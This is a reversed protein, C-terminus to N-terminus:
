PTLSDWFDCQQERVGAIQEVVEGFVMVKPESQCCPEWTPLAAQQLSGSEAFSATWSRTADSVRIDSPGPTYYADVRDFLYMIDIGHFAGRAQLLLPANEPVQEFWYRYAPEQQGINFARADSRAPCSFKVDTTMAVYAARPSPYDAAPYQALALDAVIAPVGIAAFYARVVQQYSQEDSILPADRGNEAATSGVIVPMHNHEGRRIMARPKDTLAWGDVVGDFSLRGLSNTPNTVPDFGAMVADSNLARLCGPIEEAEACGMSEVYDEGVREAEQLPTAGCGGSRLIAAHFLGSALPSAVLRCTSVSGASQGSVLVRDPDGGFAAINDHVWGLAAIQDHMGYNGSAAEGGEMSLAPHALFGFPGLRYNISVVVLGYEESLSRGDYLPRGDPLTRVSSGQEHAGGHIWVFVPALTASERPTSVNLTLCDEDGVVEGSANYQPCEAGFTSADMIERRCPPREPLRWRLDGLPPAAYPIGRYSWSDGDKIGQIPGLDSIVVGASPAVDHKCPDPPPDETTDPPPACATLGVFLLSVVLSLRRIQPFFM